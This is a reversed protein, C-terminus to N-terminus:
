LCRAVPSARVAFGFWRRLACGKPADGGRLETVCGTAPIAVELSVQLCGCAQWDEERRSYLLFYLFLGGFRRSLNGPEGSRNPRFYRGRWCNTHLM